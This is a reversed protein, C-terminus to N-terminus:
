KTLLGRFVFCHTPPHRKSRCAANKFYNPLIKQREPKQSLLPDEPEMANPPPPTLWACLLGEFPDRGMLFSSFAHAFVILLFDRVPLLYPGHQQQTVRVSSSSAGDRLIQLPFCTKIKLPRGTCHSRLTLRRWIGPPGSFLGGEM